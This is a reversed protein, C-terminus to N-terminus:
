KMLGCSALRKEIMSANGAPAQVKRNGNLAALEDATWQAVKAEEDIANERILCRLDNCSIGVREGSEMQEVVVYDIGEFNTAVPEVVVGNEVMVGAGHFAPVSMGIPFEEDLHAIRAMESLPQQPAAQEAAVQAQVEQDIQALLVDSAARAAALAQERANQKEKAVNAKVKESAKNVHSHKKCGAGCTCQWGTREENWGVVYFRSSDRDSRILFFRQGAKVSVQGKTFDERAKCSIVDTHIGEVLVTADLLNQQTKTM